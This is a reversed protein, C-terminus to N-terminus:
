DERNSGSSERSQQRLTRHMENIRAREERHYRNIARIVVPSTVKILDTMLGMLFVDNAKHADEARQKLEALFAEAAEVSQSTTNTNAM